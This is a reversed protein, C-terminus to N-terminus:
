NSFTKCMERSFAPHALSLRSRNRKRRRKASGDECSVWVSQEMRRQTHTSSCALSSFSWRTSSQPLSSRIQQHPSLASDPSASYVCCANEILEPRFLSRGSLAARSSVLKAGMAARRAAGKLPVEDGEETSMEIVRLYEKWAMHVEGATHATEAFKLAVWPDHPALIVAHSLATLAQPYLALSAYHTSLSLWGSLDVYYTDLYQTLLTIGKQRSLSASLYSQQAPSAATGKGSPLELFPSSLHLAILRKRSNQLPSCTDTKLGCPDRHPPLCRVVDTEDDNLCQEYLERAGTLNGKCELLLGRLYAVRHANSSFHM